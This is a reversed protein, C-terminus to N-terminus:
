PNLREFKVNPHHSLAKLFGEIDDIKGMPILGKAYRFDKYFIAVDGWPAYYHIEGAKPAAGDPAEAQSLAEAPYFIKEMGAYDELKVSFPLQDVLSQSTPNSLLSATFRESGVYLAIALTDSMYLHKIEPMKGSISASSAMGGAMCCTIILVFLFHGM